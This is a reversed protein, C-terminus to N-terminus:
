KPIFTITPATAYSIRFTDGSAIQTISNLSGIDSYFGSRGYEQKTVTGGKTIIAGDSSATYIFPSPTPIVTIPPSVTIISGGLRDSVVGLARVAEPTLTGDNLNVFAVRAPFLNLTSM